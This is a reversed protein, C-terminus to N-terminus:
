FTIDLGLSFTRVNPYAWASNDTEPDLGKYNTFIFPNNVDFYVRANSFINKKEPGKFTYGLTINRCRLYWIKKNYYDGIGYSSDKQFYGPRSANPNDHTWVESATSPMNYGRYLNSVGTMINSTSVHSTGSLWLDKYSGQNLKDFEGYFYINFDFNKWRITNNFGVLYGPDESGYLVKDADDIKGDPAGTRLPRGKEDVVIAGKDDYVFGDRDQIKVQGPIGGNQIVDTDGPQIIGNSVYGYRARIPDNYGQYASPKWYPSRKDWKDRYFSFTVDSSWSFDSTMINQTNITLEFGHSKTAGINAYIKNVEYMSQLDQEALLDSIKRSYLEATLNIRNDIFGLELGFNWEKTTEWSLDPNGFQNLYIGQSEVDGFQNNMGVSYYSLIRYGVSSNGTTGYSARLKGNSLLPKAWDMFDEDVFRWGLAVSPFYGWRNDKHFNSSADARFTGTFLYKDKYTYNVRGFASLLEDSSMFSGVVPKPAAGAGLNNALFSDTLFQSNGANFGERAHKEYSYGGLVSFNHDSIKKMYNATFEVLYDNRDNQGIDARGKSKAGYLTTLPLYSKRKQYNRDIGFNGKLKLDKIPEIEIFASGLFRESISEDTVELLSAPNPLFSAEPNLPYKGNEDKIPILPNFQAASVFLSANENQGQGLPVNTTNNRSFTLNTGVTVYRSLKHEINTRGTFRKVGNGRAIGNQKFFNGSVLYKTADNGGTISVNHQTQFGTRTIADIWDTDYPPNALQSDTYLPVYAKAPNNNSPYPAKGQNYLWSEYSYRNSERMFSRADLLDYEKAMTQVSATGSYTVKAAGSAGRKTTILIVGNAARSGYIATSSADKLIEISEIDNPNISALINDSTGSDYKGTELKGPDSVPFGDVVILPENSAKVSGGGRIRFSNGGGPQASVTNVQLGAAKGALAHGISSITGVPQESMKISSVSGTLDRKRQVGYGVVIVEDLSTTNERLVLNLATNGNKVVVEQPLYGIYTVILTGGVPASLAFEGDVDTITGQSTNGKLTVSVGILPNGAEDKITGKVPISNAVQQNNESSKTYIDKVKKVSYTNNIKKFSLGTESSVKKLAKDINSTSLDVDIMYGELGDLVSENYFFTHNSLETIKDFFELITLKTDKSENVVEIQKTSALGIQTSFVIASLLLSCYLITKKRLLNNNM